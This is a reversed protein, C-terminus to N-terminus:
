PPNYATITGTPTFNGATGRNTGNIFDTTTKFYLEPEKGLLTEALSPHAARVGDETVIVLANRNEEVSLDLTVDTFLRLESMRVVKVHDEARDETAPIGIPYDITPIDGAEFSYSAPFTPIPAGPDQLALCLNSIVGAAAAQGFMSPTNPHLYDGTYNVGDFAWYFPCIDGVDVTFTGDWSSSCGGSFDFSIAVHHRQGATVEIYEPTGSGARIGTGVFGGIEFFDNFDTPYGQAGSDYQFRAYLHPGSDDCLVGIVCPSLDGTEMTGSFFATEANPGFTFLPIVGILNGDIQDGDNWAEWEATKEAIAEATVIFLLSFVGKSFNAIGAARNIYGM